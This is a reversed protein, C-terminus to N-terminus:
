ALEWNTTRCTMPSYSTFFGKRLAYLPNTLWNHPSNKYIWNVYIRRSFFALVSSSKWSSGDLGFAVIPIKTLTSLWGLVVFSCSTIVTSAGLQLLGIISYKFLKVAFVSECDVFNFSWPLWICEWQHLRIYSTKWRITGRTNLIPHPQISRLLFEHFCKHGVYPHDIERRCPTLTPINNTSWLFFVIPKM